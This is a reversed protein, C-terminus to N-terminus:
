PGEGPEPVEFPPTEFPDEDPIFDPLEEPLVPAEPIVEPNYEPNTEPLPVEVPKKPHNASMVFSKITISDIRNMRSEVAFVNASIKLGAKGQQASIIM